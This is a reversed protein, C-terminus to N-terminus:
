FTCCGNLCVEEPYYRCDRDVQCTRWCPNPTKSAPVCSNGGLIEDITAEGAAPEDAVPPAVQVSASGEGPNPTGASVLGFGALAVLVLLVITKRIM